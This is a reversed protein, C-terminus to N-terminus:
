GRGEPPPNSVPAAAASEQGPVVPEGDADRVGGCFMTFAKEV